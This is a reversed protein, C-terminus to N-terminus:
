LRPYDWRVPTKTGAYQAHRIATQGAPRNRVGPKTERSLPPGTSLDIEAPDEVLRQFQFRRAGAGFWEQRSSRLSKGLARTRAASPYRAYPTKKLPGLNSAALRSQIPARGVSELYFRSPGLLQYNTQYPRSTQHFRAFTLNLCPRDPSLS